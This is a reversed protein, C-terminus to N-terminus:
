RNLIKAIEDNVEAVDYGADRLRKKRANGRGWRGAIVERAIQPYGAAPANEEPQPVEQVLDEAHVTGEAEEPM